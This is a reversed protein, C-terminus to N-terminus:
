RRFWRARRRRKAQRPLRPWRTRAMCREEGPTRDRRRPAAFEDPQEALFQAGGLGVEAQQDRELGALDSALAEALDLLHDVDAVVRDTQRALEEAQGDGGLTRLVPHDLGPMRQADDAHDGGEVERDGDPRPVGGQRQDAAIRHHPLWRLLRRKVASATWARNSLAGGFNPSAGAPRDATTM